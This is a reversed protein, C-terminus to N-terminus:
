ADYKELLYRHYDEEDPGGAAIGYLSRTIPALEAPDFEEALPLKSFITSVLESISTDHQEAYRRAREV